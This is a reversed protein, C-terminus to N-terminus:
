TLPLWDEVISTSSPDLESSSRISWSSVTSRTEAWSAPTRRSTLAKPTSTLTRFARSEFARAACFFTTASLAACLAEIWPWSESRCRISEEILDSIADSWAASARRCCRSTACARARTAM